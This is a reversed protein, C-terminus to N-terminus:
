SYPLAHYSIKIPKSFLFLYVLFGFGVETPADPLGGSEHITEM